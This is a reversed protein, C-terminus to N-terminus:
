TCMPMTTSVPPPPAGYSMMRASMHPPPITVPSMSPPPPLPPPPPPAPISMLPPPATCIPLQHTPGRFQSLDIQNLSASPIMSDGHQGGGCYCDVPRRGSPERSSSESNPPVPASQEVTRFPLSTMDSIVSFNGKSNCGFPPVRPFQHLSAVHAPLSPVPSSPASIAADTSPETSRISVFGDDIEEM